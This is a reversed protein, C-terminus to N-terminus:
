TVSADASLSSKRTRQREQLMHCSKYKKGSGCPCPDNRGVKPLEIPQQPESWDGAGGGERDDAELVGERNFQINSPKAQPAPLLSDLSGGESRAVFEVVDNKITLMMEMFLNFGQRKYEKKPDKQAYGQLGISDRMQEM